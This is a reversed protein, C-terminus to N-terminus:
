IGLLANYLPRSYSVHQSFRTVQGLGSHLSGVVLVSLPQGDLGFILVWRIFELLSGFADAHNGCILM